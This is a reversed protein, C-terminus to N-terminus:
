FLCERQMVHLQQRLSVTQSDGVTFVDQILSLPVSLGCAAATIRVSLASVNVFRAFRCPRGEDDIIWLMYPGPPAIASHPPATVTLLDGGDHTFDLVIYRQDSDFAHTVSGNRLLAVQQISDAQPTRVQFAAGYIIIDPGATIEPRHLHQCYPPRYVEIRTEQNSEGGPGNSGGTWVIGNPMLLASAHYHRRVSAAEVTTWQGTDPHYIEGELVANAQRQADEGGAYQTGGTVFVSGDALIVACAHNRTPGIGDPWQDEPWSRDGAVEWGPADNDLTIRYPREGNCVLVRPTYDEDFRLPLLVASSRSGQHYISEPPPAILPESLFTGSYPNYYRNFAVIDGDDFESVQTAFFIHGTPLLFIRHYEDRISDIATPGATLLTWSDNRPSYREPTNNSHRHNPPPEPYQERVDPHGAVAIVQNDYLTALTPYWRGGSNPTGDPDLNFDAAGAWSQSFSQYIWCARSGGGSM